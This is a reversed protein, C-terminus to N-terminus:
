ALLELFVLSFDCGITEPFMDQAVISVWQLDLGNFNKWHGFSNHHIKRSEPDLEVM